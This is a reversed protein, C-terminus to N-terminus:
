RNIKIYLADGLSHVIGKQARVNIGDMKLELGNTFETPRAPAKDGQKRLRQPIRLELLGNYRDEIVPVANFTLSTSGFRFVSRGTHIQLRDGIAEVQDSEVMWEMPQLSSIDFILITGPGKLVGTILEAKRRRLIRAHEREERLKGVYDYEFEVRAILRDDADGGDYSVRTELLTDLWVRKYHIVQKWRPLLSDLLLGLGMGTYYFRRRGAGMGRRNITRLTELRSAVAAAAAGPLRGAALRSFIPSSRYASAAMADLLRFSLYTALGEYYESAREFAVLGEDLQSRRERRILAFALIQDKRKEGDATTVAELLLHGEINGLANNVPNDDPYSALPARFVKGEDRQYVHFSEHALLSLFALADDLGEGVRELPVFATPVGFFSVTVANGNVDEPVGEIRYVPPGSVGTAIFVEQAHLPKTPHAALFVVGDQRYIAIPLSRPDWVPWIPDAFSDYLHWLEALCSLARQEVAEPFYWQPKDYM